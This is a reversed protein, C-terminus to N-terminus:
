YRGYVYNKYKRDNYLLTHEFGHFIRVNFQYFVSSLISFDIKHSAYSDKDIATQTSIKFYAGVHLM